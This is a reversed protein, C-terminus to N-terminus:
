IEPFKWFRDSNPFKGARFESYCQASHPVRYYQNNNNAAIQRLPIACQKWARKNWALAQFFLNQTYFILSKLKWVIENQWISPKYCPFFGVDSKKQVFRGLCFIVVQVFFTRWWRSFCGLHCRSCLHRSLKLVFFALCGDYSWRRLLYVWGLGSLNIRCKFLIFNEHHFFYGLRCYLGTFLLTFLGIYFDYKWFEVSLGFIIVVITRWFTGSAADMCM